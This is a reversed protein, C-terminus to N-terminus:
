LSETYFEKEIDDPLPDDFNSPILFEGEMIGFIVPNNVQLLANQKRRNIFERLASIVTDENTEFHGLVCAENILADDIKLQIM